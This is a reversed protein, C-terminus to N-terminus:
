EDGEDEAIDEITANGLAHEAGVVSRCWSKASCVLDVIDDHWPPADEHNL